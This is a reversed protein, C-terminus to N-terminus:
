VTVYHLRYVQCHPHASVISQVELTLQLSKDKYIQWKATYENSMPPKGEASIAPLVRKSENECLCVTSAGALLLAM